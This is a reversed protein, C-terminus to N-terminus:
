GPARAAHRPNGTAEPPPLTPVSPTSGDSSNSRGCVGDIGHENLPALQHASLLRGHRPQHVCLCRHYDLLESQTM